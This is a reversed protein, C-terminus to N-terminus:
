GEGKRAKEAALVSKHLKSLADNMADTDQIPAWCWAVAAAYVRRLHYLSPTRSKKRTKKARSDGLGNTTFNGTITTVGGGLVTGSDAGTTPMPDQARKKARTKKARIIEVVDVESGSTFRFTRGDDLRSGEHGNPYRVIHPYTDTKTPRVYTAIMGNRLRLRDGPKCTSLDIKSM